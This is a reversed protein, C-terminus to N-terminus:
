CNCRILRVGLDVPGPDLRDHSSKQYSQAGGNRNIGILRHLLTLPGNPSRRIPM